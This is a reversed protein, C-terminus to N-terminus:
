VNNERTQIDQHFVRERQEYIVYLVAGPFFLCFNSMELSPGEYLTLIWRRTEAQKKGPLILIVIDGSM